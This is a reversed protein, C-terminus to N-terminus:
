WRADLAEYKQVILAKETDTFVRKGAAGLHAATADARTRIQKRKRKRGKSDTFHTENEADPSKPGRAAAKAADKSEKLQAKLNARKKQEPARAKRKRVADPNSSYSKALKATPSVGIPASATGHALKKKAAAAEKIQAAAALEQKERSAAATALEAATTATTKRPFGVGFLTGSM